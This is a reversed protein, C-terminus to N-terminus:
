KSLIVARAKRKIRLHYFFTSEITINCTCNWSGCEIEVEFEVEVTSANSLILFEVVLCESSSRMLKQARM